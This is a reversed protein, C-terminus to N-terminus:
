KCPSNENRGKSATSSLFNTTIMPKCQSCEFTRSIFALSTSLRIAVWGVVSILQTNTSTFWGAVIFLQQNSAMCNKFELEYIILSLLLLGAFLDRLPTRSLLSTRSLDCTTHTIERRSRTPYLTLTTQHILQLFKSFLEKLAKGNATDLLQYSTITTEWIQTTNIVSTELEKVRKSSEQKEPFFRFYSLTLWGDVVFSECIIPPFSLKFNAAVLIKM